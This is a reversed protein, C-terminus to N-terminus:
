KVHYETKMRLINLQKTGSKRSALGNFEKRINEYMSQVNSTNLIREFEIETAIKAERLNQISNSQIM